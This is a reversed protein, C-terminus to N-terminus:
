DELRSAIRAAKRGSQLHKGAKRKRAPIAVHNRPKLRSVKIGAAESFLKVLNM